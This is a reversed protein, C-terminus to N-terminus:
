FVFSVGELNRVFYSGSSGAVIRVPLIGGDIAREAQRIVQRYELDDIEDTSWTSLAHVDSVELPNISQPLLHERENNRCPSDPADNIRENDPYENSPHSTRFDFLRSCNLINIKYLNERM